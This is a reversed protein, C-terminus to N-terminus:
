DVEPRLRKAEEPNFSAWWNAKPHKCVKYHERAIEEYQAKKIKWEEPEMVEVELTDMNLNTGTMAEVQLSFHEPPFDLDSEINWVKATGDFSCTLISNEGNSFESQGIHEEHKFFFLLEGSRIDWVKAFGQTDWVLARNKNEDFIGGVIGGDHKFPPGLPKQSNLEWVRAENDINWILVQDWNRDFILGDIQGFIEESFVVVEGSEVHFIKYEGKLILLFCLKDVNILVELDSFSNIDELLIKKGLPEWKDVDWLTAKGDLTLTILGVGLKDFFVREQIVIPEIVRPNIKLSSIDFMKASNREDCALIYEANRIFIAKLVKFSNDNSIEKQEEEGFFNINLSGDECWTLIQKKEENVILGKIIGNSKGICGLNEGTILDWQRIKNLEVTLFSNNEEFIVPSFWWNHKIQSGVMQGTKSNWLYCINKIDYTIIRPFNKCFFGAIVRDEHKFCFQHKLEIPRNIWLRGKNNSGWTLLQNQNKNFVAGIAINDLKMSVGLIEGTSLDWMKVSKDNGKSLLIKQYDDTLIGQINNGHNITKILPKFSTSNLVRIKGSYDWTLIKSGNNIVLMGDHFIRSSKVKKFSEIDWLNLVRDNILTIVQTGNAHFVVEVNSSPLNGVTSHTLDSIKLEGILKCNKTQWLRLDGNRSWTLIRKDGKEFIAGITDIHEMENGLLEGTKTNWLIARDKGWGLLRDGRHDFIANCFDFNLWWIECISTYTNIDFVKGGCENGWLFLKNEEMDFVAGLIECEIVFPKGLRELKQLDWLQAENNVWTLLRKGKNDLIGSLFVGVTDIFEQTQPQSKIELLSSFGLYDTLFLFRNEYDFNAKVVINNEFNFTQILQSVPLYKQIDFFITSTLNRENSYTIIKGALLLYKLYDGNGKARKGMEWYYRGLRNGLEINKDELEKEEKSVREVNEQFVAEELDTWARMGMRGAELIKLDTKSFEVSEGDEIERKKSNLLRIAKQGPLDSLEHMERIIPALSDHGLRFVNISTELSDIEILLYLNKLGELLQRLKPHQFELALKEIPHQASTGRVTTFYFLLELVLGSNSEEQFKTGLSKLQEGVLEKLNQSKVEEFLEFTIRRPKQPVKDWMKRLLLQLLPAKNGASDGLITQGILHSLKEGKGNEEYSLAYTDRYETSLTLGEIAELIGKSSLPELFEEEMLQGKFLAKIEALFEKRFSLLVKIHENKNLKGVLDILARKEVESLENERPDTFIEELQDLIVLQYGEESQINPLVQNFVNKNKERRFYFVKWGKNELRPKLGAFLLSSKGVGTYGFYLLIQIESNVLFNILRRIEIGRGFFIRVDKETFFDLGKFPIAPLRYKGDKYPHDKLPNELDLDKTIQAILHLIDREFELNRLPIANLDSIRSISDPLNEFSEKSEAANVFVPFLKTHPNTLALELERSVWDGDERLRDKKKDIGRWSPGIMAIILKAAKVANELEYPFHAGPSLRSTDLFVKDEGFSKKLHEAILQAREPGDDRRYSIFIENM